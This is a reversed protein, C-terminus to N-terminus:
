PLGAMRRVFKIEAELLEQNHEVIAVINPLTKKGTLNNKLKGLGNKLRELLKLRTKLYRRRVEPTIYNIFYLSLDISFYPKEIALISKLLLKGFEERGKETIKYIYKVPRNGARNATQTVLGDKLMRKLPYYISDTKSGTFTASIEGVLKKLQYGHKPGGQLLGLFLLEQEKM